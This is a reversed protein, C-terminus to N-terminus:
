GVFVPRVIVLVVVVAGLAQGVQDDPILFVAIADMLRELM